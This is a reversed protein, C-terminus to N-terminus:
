EQFSITNDSIHFDNRVGAYAYNSDYGVRVKYDGFGEDELVELLRKLSSVSLYKGKEM